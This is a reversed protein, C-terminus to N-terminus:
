MSLNIESGSVANCKDDEASFSFDPGPQGGSAPVVGGTLSIIGAECPQSFVHLYVL